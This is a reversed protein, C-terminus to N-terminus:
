WSKQHSHSAAAMSHNWGVMYVKHFSTSGKTACSCQKQHLLTCMSCSVDDPCPATCSLLFCPDITPTLSSCTACACFLSLAEQPGLSARTCNVILGDIVLYLRNPEFIKSPLLSSWESFTLPKPLNINFCGPEM